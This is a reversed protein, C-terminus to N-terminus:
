DDDNEELWELSGQGLWTALWPLAEPSTELAAADFARGAILAEVWVLATAPLVHQAGDVFLWVQTGRAVHAFRSGPRRALRAGRDLSQRVRAADTEVADPELHPKSRTLYRGIFADLDDDSRTLGARLLGRLQALDSPDLAAPKRAVHRGPDGFRLQTSGQSLLEEGFAAVLEHQDPARFGISFTMARDLAVGFHAVNPPLYLIDGPEAVLERQPEFNALIKLDADTRLTPDFSEALQWRRRGEAQLLFVDYDDTHPGVSGGPAAVSVMIDDIRWDPIFRFPELLAAIEPVLKDLDQVLLTWDRKPLRELRKAEFPGHELRWRATLSGQVLRSEVDEECALGAVEDASIPSRFGPLAGKLLLPTRQWHAQLFQEPKLEGFPVARVYQVVLGARSAKL